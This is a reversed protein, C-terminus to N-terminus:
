PRRTLRGTGPASVAAVSILWSAVGSAATIWSADSSAASLRTWVTPAATLQRQSVLTEVGLGTCPERFQSCGSGADDLGAVVVVASRARGERRHEVAASPM